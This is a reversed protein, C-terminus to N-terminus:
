NPNAALVLSTNQGGFGFSNSLVASVEAQRKVNPVVDLPIAPDPNDYNITPPLTGTQITLLSFVAEIAGAATLTHGIMSKNSSVPISALREGFVTSLALYEMKDNEPTSTGHANIYSIQDETLGADALAARVTGIAPSADPKSRTRHFDDAKEGCGALIGLVRAGRAVASELSEMVLAGSGESMAFGDRDKSFPKSAKEPRDNQTSLASLLSFRILAEASVSGDTGISLVRDSEGRRIAEVGLQIATAGSACATSLTIPLGRTGFAESLREAIYGFQTTNFLEDQRARRCAELLLQYSAPGENKVTADLAFRSKWDLEVPPAALFLPGGFDTSSLGSQALAEEGALRALAESLASAGVDSEPLFDVTGSFRTNLNDTPFRTITHIGSKGSTLAAWNDEKGQGLSSVVGAGTIAVIPRGLHDTYKTM